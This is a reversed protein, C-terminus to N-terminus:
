PTQRKPSLNLSGSLHLATLVAEVAEFRADTEKIFPSLATFLDSRREQLDATLRSTAETYFPDDKPLDTRYITVPVTM